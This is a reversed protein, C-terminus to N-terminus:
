AKFGIFEPWEMGGFAAIPVRPFGIVNTAKADMYAAHTPILDDLFRLGCQGCTHNQRQLAKATEGDYQNNKRKSWYVENGDFPSKNGKVMTFRNTKWSVSPFAKNILEVAKHRSIKKEKRFKREATKGPFWLRDRTNEMWCYKHYNRWGRIIPALKEAKVKAGYNSNNVIYKIKDRVNRFNEESPFSKFMRNKLVKMHWGLFDFGDTAKTIKTKEESIEMGRTALFNKVKQLIKSTNEGSKIFIIMDDAYRVSPHIAEIGNLAVNALLPSVVGGQPTGQNPFDPSVGAKLCRFIGISIGYPAILREMIATHSIRDFCKKIDLEIVSKKWGNSSSSLNNFIQRQADHAGRGQRFGYSRAHFTAEHAPELAYKM